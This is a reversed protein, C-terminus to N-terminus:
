EGVSNNKHYDEQMQKLIKANKKIPAIPVVINLDTDFIIGLKEENNDEAGYGDSDAFYRGDPYIMWCFMVYGNKPYDYLYLKNNRNFVEKNRLKHLGAYFEKEITENDIDSDEVCVNLYHELQRYKGTRINILYRDIYYEKDNPDARYLSAFGEDTVFGYCDELEPCNLVRVIKRGEFEFQANCKKIM